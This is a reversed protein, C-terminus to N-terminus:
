SKNKYNIALQRMENANARVAETISSGGLLRALEEISQEESLEYIATSTINNEVSKEIMFHNDAMSAIQPLHTICIIQRSRSLISLKEGVMQATRGSIGADIEDFILTEIDDQNATVTRIALMIRSLEGGSAVKSLPKLEEGPNAAIEFYMIDTGNASFADTNEFHAEFRVDNFNLELLSERISSCLKDAALKRLDSLKKCLGFLEKEKVSLKDKLSAILTDHSQLKYLREQKAELYANIDKISKGYKLKLSNILDLRQQINIYEEEDFSCNDIYDTIMRSIDSLLSEVDTMTESLGQLEEDYVAASNLARLATGFMDCVNESGSVVQQDVISMEEMIKQVHSMKRFATELSVDEGDTLKASLIEQIEFELFSIERNRQEEDINLESLQKQLTSYETYAKKLQEKVEALEAKAYEDLIEIHHSEKLLLQNDHQGHIDILLSAITKVQGQTFSQGNVKIQSRTSTIKRSIVLEGDDLEEIGLDTLQKRVSDNEIYFTLETLAYEADKRILDASTKGGLAINISGLIISKGAGTEGTLINLGNNFNIDAEDILALNRVHLNTLM